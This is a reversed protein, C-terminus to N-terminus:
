LGFWAAIRDAQAQLEQLSPVDNCVVIDAVARRQARSAQSAMIGQVTARDLGSRAMTRLLQTEPTCDVVAVADLRATWHGSEALLPIDFVALRVGQAAAATAQAATQHGVLPHVIAELQQRASPQAFVLARMRARDLAGSADILADGFTQRIAPIAAGGPATVGRAIRDADIWAAGRQALMDALTSKGSGIGGTVGLRVM